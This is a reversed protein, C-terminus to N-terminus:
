GRAHRKGLYAAIVDPNDLVDRPTGEAIMQGANLVIVRDCLNMVAKVIHEVVVVTIGENRLGVILRMAGQVEVPTLGAM